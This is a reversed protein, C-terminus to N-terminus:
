NGYISFIGHKTYHSRDSESLHQGQYSEMAKWNLQRLSKVSRSLSLYISWLM